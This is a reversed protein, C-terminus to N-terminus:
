TATQALAARVEQGKVRLKCDGDTFFFDEPDTNPHYTSDNQTLANNPTRFTMGIDSGETLAGTLTIVEGSELFVNNHLPEDASVNDQVVIMGQMELTGDNRIGGSNTAWGGTIMGTGADTDTGSSDRVTLTSGSGSTRPASDAQFVANPIGSYSKKYCMFIRIDIGFSVIGCVGRARRRRSPRNPSVTRDESFLAQMGSRSISYYFVSGSVM